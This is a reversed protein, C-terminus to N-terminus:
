INCIISAPRSVAVVAAAIPAYGVDWIPDRMRVEFKARCTFAKKATYRAFIRCNRKGFGAGVLIEPTGQAANTLATLLAKGDRCNNQAGSTLITTIGLAQAQRLAAMPDACMDFFVRHLTIEKYAVSILSQMHKEHLTGDPALCGIVVGNAGEACFLEVERRLVEIERM